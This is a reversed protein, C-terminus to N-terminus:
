SLFQIVMAVTMGTDPYNGGSFGDFIKAKSINLKFRKETSFAIVSNGCEVAM